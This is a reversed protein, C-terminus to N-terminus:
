GLSYLLKAYGMGLSFLMLLESTTLIQWAPQSESKHVIRVDQQYALAGAAAVLSIWVVYCWMFADSTSIQLAQTSVGIFLFASLNHILNHADGAYSTSIMTWSSVQAILCLWILEPHLIAMSTSLITSGAGISTSSLVPWDTFMDTLLPAPYKRNRVSYKHQETSAYWMYILITAVFTLICACQLLLIAAAESTDM